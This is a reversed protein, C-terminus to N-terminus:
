TRLILKYQLTLPVQARKLCTGSTDLVSSLHWNGGLLRAVRTEPLLDM